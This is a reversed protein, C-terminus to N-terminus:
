VGEGHPPRVDTLLNEVAHVVGYVCVLGWPLSSNAYFLRSGNFVFIGVAILGYLFPFGRGGRGDSLALVCKRLLGEALLVPPAWMVVFVLVFGSLWDDSFFRDLVGVGLLILFLAASLMILIFFFEAGKRTEEKRSRARVIGTLGDIGCLAGYACPIGWKVYSPAPVVLLGILGLGLLGYLIAFVTRHPPREAACFFYVATRWLLYEAVFLPLFFNFCDFTSFSFYYYTQVAPVFKRCLAAALLGATALTVLVYLAGLFRKRTQQRNTM